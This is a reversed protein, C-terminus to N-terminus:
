QNPIDIYRADDIAEVEDDECEVILIRDALNRLEDPAYKPNDFTESSEALIVLANCLLGLERKTVVVTSLKSSQDSTMVKAVNSYLVRTDVIDWAISVDGSEPPKALSEAMDIGCEEADDESNADFISEIEVTTFAEDRTEWVIEYKGTVLYQAM